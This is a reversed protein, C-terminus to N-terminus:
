RDGRLANMAALRLELGDMVVAALDALMELEEATANGPKTDMVAVTGLAHGDSTIIPAAAYFQLGMEGTVLPHAATRPDTRANTVLYPKGQLIASAGLGPDRPVQRVGPVGLSAKFWIRDTDVICVTAMPVAFLRAAISAIRDFAVDPPTDLIEYRAVAKIRDSEKSRLRQQPTAV